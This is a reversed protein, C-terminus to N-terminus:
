NLTNLNCIIKNLVQETKETNPFLISHNRKNLSLSLKKGSFHRREVSNPWKENIFPMVANHHEITYDDTNCYEYIKKPGQHNSISQILDYSELADNNQELISVLDPFQPHKELIFQSNSLVAIQNFVSALLVSIYGGGSTGYFIINKLKLNEVFCRIVEMIDQQQRIRKTNLFWSLELCSQEYFNLLFDFFHITHSNNYIKTNIGYFVPLPTKANRNPKAMISGHFFVVLTDGEGEKFYFITKGHEHYTINGYTPHLCKTVKFEIDHM